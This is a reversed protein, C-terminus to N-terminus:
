NRTFFNIHSFFFKLRFCAVGTHRSNNGLQQNDDNAGRDWEEREVGTKRGAFVSKGGKVARGSTRDISNPGALTFM